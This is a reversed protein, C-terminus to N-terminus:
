PLSIYIDGSTTEIRCVGGDASTPVNVKGSVTKTEFRKPSGLTGRVNGSVTKIELSSADAGDLTVNGSVTSLTMHGSAKFSNLSINGSTTGVSLSAASSSAIYVDGSTTRVSAGGGIEAGSLTIDGSTSTLSLSGAGVCVIDGSTTTVSVNERVPSAVSANGSTATIKVSDLAFGEPINVDGSVTAVSVSGYAPDSLYIVIEEKEPFTFSMGIHDYWKRSDKPEIKLKKGSVEVSYALKESEPCLVRCKGDDSKEFRVDASVSRVDIDYFDDTVEHTVTEFSDTTTLARLDFGVSAASLVSILGGVAILVAAIILSIKVAKKM